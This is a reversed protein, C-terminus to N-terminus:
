RTALRMLAWLQAIADDSGSWEVDRHNLRGWVWLYMAVPPASVRGDARGTEEASCRWAETFGPGARAIWHHGGSSVAVSHRATGSLGLMPLRQGFWVTLAEDVGDVAFDEAIEATPEGAAQEVDYRHITTEHAVRRWWFGYTHDAPWWSAAYADPSHATLEALLEALGARLYDETSQGPAPSEQWGGPARGEVIWQRAVRYLGGVHRVIEGITFGPCTPVRTGPPASRAAGLLLEVEIGLAEAFRGHDILAQGAM